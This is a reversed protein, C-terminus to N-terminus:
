ALRWREIFRNKRCFESVVDEIWNIKELEDFSMPCNDEQYKRVFEIWDRFPLDEDEDEYDYKNVIFIHFLIQRLAAPLVHARFYTDHVLSEYNPMSNNIELTITGSGDGIEVRWVQEGLNKYVVPLIERKRKNNVDEQGNGFSLTPSIALIRHDNQDVIKIRFKANEAGEIASLDVSPYELNEITGYDFRVFSSGRFAEVYIRSEKPNPIQIEQFSEQFTVEFSPPTGDIFRLAVM